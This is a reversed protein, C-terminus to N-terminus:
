LEEYLDDVGSTLFCNVFRKEEEYSTLFNILEDMEIFNTALDIVTGSHNRNFNSGIKIIYHKGVLSKLKSVRSARNNILDNQLPEYPCDAICFDVDSSAQLAKLNKEIQKFNKYPKTTGMFTSQSVPKVKSKVAKKMALNVASSALDEASKECILRGAIKADSSINSLDPFLTAMTSGVDAGSGKIALYGTNRIIADTFPMTRPKSLHDNKENIWIKISKYADTTYISKSGRKYIIILQEIISHLSGALVMDSVSVDYKSMKIFSLPLPRKFALKNRPDLHSVGGNTEYYINADPSVKKMVAKMLDPM